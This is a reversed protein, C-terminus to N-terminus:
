GPNSRKGAGLYAVQEFSRTDKSPLGGKAKRIGFLVAATAELVQENKSYTFVVTHAFPIQSILFPNIALIILAPNLKQIKRLLDIQTKSLIGIQGSTSQFSADFIVAKSAKSVPSITTFFDGSTARRADMKMNGDRSAIRRNISQNTEGPVEVEVLNAHHKALISRLSTDRFHVGIEWKGVKEPTLFLIQDKHNIKLPVNGVTDRELRISRGGVEKAVEGHSKLSFRKRKLPRFLGYKKKLALIRSVREDLMGESLVGKQVANVIAFLSEEYDNETIIMDHGALLAKVVSDEVSNFDKIAKMELADTIVLGKFGLETKLLGSVIKHSFTVINKADFAPYVAHNTMIAEVGCAIATQFPKLECNRLEEKTRRIRELVYHSNTDSHGAGPFHKATSILGNQKFALIHGPLFKCVTEVDTGYSRINTSPNFPNTNTDCVPCFGWSLGVSAAEKATIAAIRKALAVDRAASIGMPATFETAEMHVQGFGGEMDSTAFPPIKSKQRFEEIMARTGDLTTYDWISLHIGGWGNKVFYDSNERKGFRFSVLIQAAKEKLNLQFQNM